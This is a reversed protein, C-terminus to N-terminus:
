LIGLMNRFARNYAYSLGVRDDAEIEKDCAAKAALGHYHKGFVILEVITYKDVVLVRTDIECMDPTHDTGYVVSDTDMAAIYRIKDGYKKRNQRYLSEAMKEPVRRSGTIPLSIIPMDERIIIEDFLEKISEMEPKELEKIAM